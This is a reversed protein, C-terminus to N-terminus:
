FLKSADKFGLLSKVGSVLKRSNIPEPLCFNIQLWSANLPRNITSKPWFDFAGFPRNIRICYSLFKAKLDDEANDLTTCDNSDSNTLVIWKRANESKELSCWELVLILSWSYFFYIAYSSSYRFLSSILIFNNLKVPNSFYSFSIMFATFIPVKALISREFKVNSIIKVRSRM